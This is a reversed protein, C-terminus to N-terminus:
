LYKLLTKTEDKHLHSIVQKLNRVQGGTHERFSAEAEAGRGNRIHEFMERHKDITLKLNLEFYDKETFGPSLFQNTSNPIRLTLESAETKNCFFLAIFYGIMQMHNFRRNGSNEVVALHFNLDLINLKRNDCHGSAAEAEFEKLYKELMRIVKPPRLEALRRAAIPEIAERMERWELFDHLTFKRLRYGCYPIYEFIDWGVIQNLAERVANRSLGFEDALVSERIPQGPEFDGRKLKDILRQLAILGAPQKEIEMTKM